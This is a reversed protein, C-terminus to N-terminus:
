KGTGFFGVQVFFLFFLAIRVDDVRPIYIRPSGKQGNQVQQKMTELQQMNGKAISASKVAAEVEVWLVLVSSYAVYFLGETSISLIVFLPCFALFLSLLKSHQHQHQNVGMFPLILSTALVVWGAGQLLKPLGEKASLKAAATATVIATPLLLALQRMIIEYAFGKLERGSSRTASMWLSAVGVMSAAGALSCEDARLNHLLLYLCLSVHTSHEGKQECEPTSLDGLCSM